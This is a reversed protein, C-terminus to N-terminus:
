DSPEDRPYRLAQEPDFVEIALEEDAFVVQDRGLEKATLLGADAVRIISDLDTAVSSHSVGFSATFTPLGSKAVADRLASQIRELVEMSRGLDMEPYAIVFEEGGFRAVIDRGRANEKLVDSFLQLARDGLEHGFNDNLLKFHDLDALVLVFPTSTRLLDQLATELSRRNALGTLPDTAAELQTSALTRMAGLRAGAASSLTVLQEVLVPSPPEGEPGTSHLVGAVQGAANVPVCVASCPGSPRDRLQRCANLSDPGAFTMTRGWKMAPCSGSDLVPCNAPGASPNRIQQHLRDSTGDTLLIEAPNSPAFIGLARESIRHVDSETMALDLAESVVRLQAIRDAANELGAIRHATGDALLNFSRALLGIDGGELPSRQHLDGDGFRRMTVGLSRMPRTISRTLFWGAIIVIFSGAALSALVVAVALNSNVVRGRVALVAVVSVAALVLVVLAALSVVSASVRRTM